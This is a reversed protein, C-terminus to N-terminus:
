DTQAEELESEAWTGGAPRVQSQRLAKASAAFAAQFVSVGCM